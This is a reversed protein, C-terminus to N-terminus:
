HHHAYPLPQLKNCRNCVPLPNNTCVPVLNSNCVPVPLRHNNCVPLPPKDLGFRRCMQRNPHDKAM